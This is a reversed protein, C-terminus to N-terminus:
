EHLGYYEFTSSIVKKLSLEEVMKERSLRGMKERSDKDSLLKGLAEALAVHDKAPVLYGNVEHEVCEKCGPVNTTVIPRGVAMAEILSKPLGERYSPLCVIDAEELLPRVDKQHGIWEIYGPILMRQLESESIGSPNHDDIDGALVFVAKNEWNIKLLNAADIFEVIGKDYLMRATVVVKIRGTTVPQKYSFITEDVGAGKILKYNGRDLFGMTKYLSIDDPNQFIFQVNGSYALQMLGKLIKQVLGNRGNIFNYGLGSIANFIKFNKGRNLRAALSGYLVPKITVNHIINPQYKAFLNTLHAIVKLEKLPNKGARDFDVNLFHIGCEEIESRRGTDRALLFVDFGKNKMAIALPLRHSIFFWDVNVVYFIKKKESM